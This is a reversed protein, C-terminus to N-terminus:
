YFVVVVNLVLNATMVAFSTHQQECKPQTETCPTYRHENVCKSYIKSDFDDRILKGALHTANGGRREADSCRLVMMGDGQQSVSLREKNKRRGTMIIEVESEWRAKEM